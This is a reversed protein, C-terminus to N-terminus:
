APSMSAHMAIPRFAALLFKETIERDFGYDDVTFEGTLRRRLFALFEALRPEWNAGFVEKSASTFASLWELPPIGPTPHRHDTTAPARIDTLAGTEAAAVETSLEVPGAAPTTEQEDVPEEPKQAVSPDPEPARATGAQSPVRETADNEEPHAARERRSPAASKAALSRSNSSPKADGTGRGPKGRTGIPIIEADGM